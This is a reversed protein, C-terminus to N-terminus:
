SLYQQGSSQSSIVIVSATRTQGPLTIASDRYVPYQSVAPQQLSVIIKGPSVSAPAASLCGHRPIVWRPEEARHEATRPGIRKRQVIVILFTMPRYVAM